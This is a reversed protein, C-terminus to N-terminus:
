ECHFHVQERGGDVDISLDNIERLVREFEPGNLKSFDIPQGDPRLRLNLKESLGPVLSGLQIGGRILSIPVRINVTKEHPRWHNPAKTVTIRLFRPAPKEPETKANEPEGLAEILQQAEDVSVKGQALLDLIRRTDEAHATM